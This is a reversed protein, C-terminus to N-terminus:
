ADSLHLVRCVKDVGTACLVVGTFPRPCMGFSADESGSAQSDQVLYRENYPSEELQHRSSYSPDAPRLKVNPVQSITLIEFLNLVLM